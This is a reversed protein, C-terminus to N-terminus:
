LYVVKCHGHLDHHLVVDYRVMEPHYVSRHDAEVEFYNDRFDFVPAALCADSRHVQRYFLRLAVERLCLFVDLVDLLLIYCLDDRPVELIELCRTMVYYYNVVTCYYYGNLNGLYHFQDFSLNIYYHDRIEGVVLIALALRCPLDLDPSEVPPDEIAIELHLPFLIL